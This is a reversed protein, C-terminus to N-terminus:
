AETKKPQDRSRAAARNRTERRAGGERKRGRENGGEGERM